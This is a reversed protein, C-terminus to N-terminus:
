FGIYQYLILILLWNKFGDAWEEWETRCKMLEAQETLVHLNKHGQGWGNHIYEIKGLKERKWTKVVQLTLIIVKGGRFNIVM